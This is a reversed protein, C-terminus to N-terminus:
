EQSYHYFAVLSAYNSLIGDFRGNRIFQQVYAADDLTWVFARRGEAHMAEVEANQTGLTWRPAWVRANSRRVDDLGLECLSPIDTYGPLSLLEELKDETPLGIYMQLDRGAAAAKALYERQIASILPMSKQVAKMDLWVVRLGTQYVVVDLAEQLTPIREGHILRVLNSLQLYTYEEVPGVLGSKRTLRLNLNNDHYLVPIGDATLHLDIEIGTAGLIESYRIMALSNESVPLLDSTRGGARHAVIEFPQEPRYLPRLWRLVLSRSPSKDGTGWSGRLIISDPGIVPDPSFLLRGGESARITFRVSGTGTNAITRWTGSFFLVSDLSGGRLACFFVNNGGFGSLTHVPAGDEVVTSWKLVLLDGAINGDGEVRYVGELASRMQKTLPHTESIFDRGPDVPYTIDVEQGCAALVATFACLTIALRIM